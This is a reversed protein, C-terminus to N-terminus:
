YCNAGKKGTTESKYSTNPDDSDADFWNEASMTGITDWSGSSGGGVTIDSEWTDVSWDKAVEGDRDFWATCTAGGAPYDGEADWGIYTQVIWNDGEYKEGGTRTTFASMVASYAVGEEDWDVMFESMEGEMMTSGSAAGFTYTDGLVIGDQAFATAGLAAAIFTKM